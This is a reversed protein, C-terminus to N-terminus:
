LSGGSSNSPDKNSVDMLVDLISLNARDIHIEDAPYTELDEEDGIYHTVMIDGDADEKVEGTYIRRYDPHSEGITGPYLDVYQGEFGDCMQEQYLKRLRPFAMITRQNRPTANQFDEMTEMPVIIDRKFLNATKRLAARAKALADSSYFKDFTQQAREMFMQAFPTINDGWGHAAQETQGRLYEVTGAHPPAFTQSEFEDASGVFFRAM